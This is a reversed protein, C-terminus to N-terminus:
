NLIRRMKEDPAPRAPRSRTALDRLRESSSINLLAPVIV